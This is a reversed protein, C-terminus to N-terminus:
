EMDMQYICKNTNDSFDQKCCYLKHIIKEGKIDRTYYEKIYGEKRYSDCFSGYTIKVFPFIRICM